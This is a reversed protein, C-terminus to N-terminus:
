WHAADLEASGAAIRAERKGGLEILQSLQLTTEADRLNQLERSGFANDLEFSAEPNPFAGAQRRRGGAIGIEKEAASLQPNAALARHLAMALTIPRGSEAFLEGSHVCVFAALAFGIVYRFPM